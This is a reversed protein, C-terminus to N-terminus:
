GGGLNSVALEPRSLLAAKREEHPMTLLSSDPWPGPPGYGDWPRAETRCPELAFALCNPCPVSYVPSSLPEKTDREFVFNLVSNELGYIYERLRDVYARAQLRDVRSWEVNADELCSPPCLDKRM